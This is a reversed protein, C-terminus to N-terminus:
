NADAGYLHTVELVSVVPCIRRRGGNARLVAGERTISLGVFWEVRDTAVPRM